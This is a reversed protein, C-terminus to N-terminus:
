LLRAVSVFASERTLNSKPDFKNGTGKMLDHSYAYCVYPKAWDSIADYDAYENIKNESTLAKKNKYMSLMKAAQERTLTGNPNFTTASTGSIFGMNYAKLIEEKYPSSSIDTFPNKSAEKAEANKSEYVYVLLAAFEARTINSKYKYQLSLPMAGARQLKEASPRAWTSIGSLVDVVDTEPRRAEFVRVPQLKNAVTTDGLQGNANRGWTYASTDSGIAHTGGAEIDYFKASTKIMRPTASTEIEGVRLQGYEGNGWAYAKKETTLAVSFAAGGDVFYAKSIGSVQVPVNSKEVNDIGLQKSSNSGWTYVNGKKDVALSHNYGAGISIIDKLKKVQVPYSKNTNAGDGLQGFYNDGWTYVYGRNSLVVFHNGGAEIDIVDALQQWPTKGQNWTWLTGDSKIAAYGTQGAAIVVVNSLGAVLTPTKVDNGWVYVKGGETLAMSSSYGAAVSVIKTLPKIQVFKETYTGAEQCLQGKANSGCGWVTGDSKVVLTHADGAAVTDQIRGSETIAAASVPVMMTVMTLIIALLVVLFRKMKNIRGEEKVFM